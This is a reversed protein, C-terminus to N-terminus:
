QMDEPFIILICFVNISADFSLQFDAPNDSDLGTVSVAHASYAPYANGSYATPVGNIDLYGEVGNITAYDSETELYMARDDVGNSKAYIYIECNRDLTFNIYRGNTASSAGASQYAQSASLTTSGNIAIGTPLQINASKNSVIKGAIITFETNVADVTVNGLTDDSATFDNFTLVALDPNKQDGTLTYPVNVTRVNTAPTNFTKPEGYSVTATGSNAAINPNILSISLYPNTKTVVETDGSNYTVTFQWTPTMTERLGKAQTTTGGSFEINKVDDFVNILTFGEYTYNEVEDYMTAWIQYIGRHLAGLETIEEGGKYISVTYLSRDLAASDFDVEGNADPKRVEIWNAAGTFSATRFGDRDALTFLAKNPDKLTVVLGGFLADVVEVNYTAAASTGESSYSVSIEYTGKTYADYNDTNITVNELSITESKGSKYNATVVLGTPRYEEGISFQVKANTTDLSISQLEKGDTACALLSFCLSFVM